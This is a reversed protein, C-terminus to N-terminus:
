ADTRPIDKGSDIMSGIRENGRWTDRISIRRDHSPVIRGVSKLIDRIIGDDRHDKVIPGSRANDTSRCRQCCVIPLM